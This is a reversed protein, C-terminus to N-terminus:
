NVRPLKNLEKEVNKALHARRYDRLAKIGADNMATTFKEYAWEIATALLLQESTADEPDASEREVQWGEVRINKGEELIVQGYKRIIM